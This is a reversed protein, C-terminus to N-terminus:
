SHSENTEKRQLAQRLDDESISRLSQSCYYDAATGTLTCHQLNQIEEPLCPAFKLWDRIAKLQDAWNLWAYKKLVSTAQRVCFCIELFYNGAPDVLVLEISRPRADESNPMVRLCFGDKHKPEKLGAPEPERWSLITQALKSVFPSTYSKSGTESHEPLASQELESRVNQALAPWSLISRAQEKCYVVQLTSRSDVTETIIWGTPQSQPRGQNAVTFLVCVLKFM